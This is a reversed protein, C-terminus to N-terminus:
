GGLSSKSKKLIKLTVKWEKKLTKRKEYHKIRKTQLKGSLLLKQKKKEKGIIWVDVEFYVVDM